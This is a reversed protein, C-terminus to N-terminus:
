TFRTGAPAHSKARRADALRNRWNLHEIFLCFRQRFCANTPIYTESSKKSYVVLESIPTRSFIHPLHPAPAAESGAFATVGERFVDPDFGSASVFHGSSM